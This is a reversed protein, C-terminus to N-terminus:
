AEAAPARVWGHERMFEEIAGPCNDEGVVTELLLEQESEKIDGQEVLREVHQALDNDDDNSDDDPGTCTDFSIDVDQITAHLKKDGDNYEFTYTEEIALQTCDSRTVVPAREVCSCMAAGPVNRIYGRQYLHDYM